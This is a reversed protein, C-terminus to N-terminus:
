TTKFERLIIPTTEQDVNFLKYLGDIIQKFCINVSFICKSNDYFDFLIKDGKRFKRLEETFITKTEKRGTIESIPSLNGAPSTIKPYTWQISLYNKGTDCDKDSVIGVRHELCNRARNIQKLIDLSNQLGLNKSILDLKDPFSCHHFKLCLDDVHDKFSLVTDGQKPEKLALYLNHVREIFEHIIKILQHYNLLDIETVVDSKIKSFSREPLVRLSYTYELQLPKNFDDNKLNSLALYEYKCNQFWRELKSNLENALLLPFARVQGYSDTTLQYSLIKQNTM